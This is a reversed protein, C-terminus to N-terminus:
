GTTWNKPDMESSLIDNPDFRAKLWAIAKEHYETSLARELLEFETSAGVEGTCKLQAKYHCRVFAAMLDVTSLM